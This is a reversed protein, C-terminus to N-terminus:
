RYVRRIVVAALLAYWVLGLASGATLLVTEVLSHGVFATFGIALFLSTARALQEVIAPFTVEALRCSENQFEVTSFSLLTAYTPVAVIAIVGLRALSTGGKTGVLIIWQVACRAAELASSKVGARLPRAKLLDIRLRLEEHKLEVLAADCNTTHCIEGNSKVLQAAIARRIELWQSKLAQPTPEGEYPSNYNYLPVTAGALFASPDIETASFSVHESTCETFKCSQFQCDVFQSM